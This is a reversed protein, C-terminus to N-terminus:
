PEIGLPPVVALIENAHVSGECVIEFAYDGYSPFVLQEIKVTHRGRGTPGFDVVLEVSALADQSDSKRVRLSFNTQKGRPGEWMSVVWFKGPETPAPVSSIGLINFIRTITLLNDEFRADEALM